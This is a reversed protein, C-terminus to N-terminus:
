RAILWGLGALVAFCVLRGPTSTSLPAALSSLTPHDHRPHSFLAVLEVALLCCGVLVWAIVGAPGGAGRTGPLAASRRLRLM